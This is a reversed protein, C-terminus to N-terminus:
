MTFKGMSAESNMQQAFKELAIYFKLVKMTRSSKLKVFEHKYIKLINTLIKGPTPVVVLQQKNQSYIFKMSYNQDQATEPQLCKKELLLTILMLESLQSENSLQIVHKRRM